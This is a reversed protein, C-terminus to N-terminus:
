LGLANKVSLAINFVTTATWKGAGQGTFTIDGSEVASAMASAPTESSAVSRITQYDTKAVLTPNPHQGRDMETIRKQGDTELWFYETEAGRTVEFTIREDALMGDALGLDLSAAQENYPERMEVMRDYLEEDWPQEQQAAAPTALSAVLLAALVLATTRSVSLTM